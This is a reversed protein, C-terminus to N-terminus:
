EQVESEAKPKFCPMWHDDCHEICVDTGNHVCNKCSREIQKLEAVQPKIENGEHDFREVENDDCEFCVFYKKETGILGNDQIWTHYGSSTLAKVMDVRDYHAPIYVRIIM